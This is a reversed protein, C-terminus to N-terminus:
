AVDQTKGDLLPGSLPFEILRCVECQAMQVLQSQQAADLLFHPFEILVVVTEQQTVGLLQQMGQYFAAVGGKDKLLDTGLQLVHHDVLELVGTRHLPLVEAHQEVLRHTVFAARVEDHTIHFLADVTPTRTVPPQQIVDFLLETLLLYLRDGQLLVVTRLSVDDGEVVVEETMRRLQLILFLLFQIGFLRFLQLSGIGVHHLLNGLPALRCALDAHCEQRCFVILRCGELLHCVGDAFQRFSTDGLSLDGDQYSHVVLYRHDGLIEQLLHRLHLDHRIFRESEIGRHCHVEEHFGESQEGVRVVQQCLSGDHFQVM